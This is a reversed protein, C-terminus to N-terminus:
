AARLLFMNIYERIFLCIRKLKILDWSQTVTTVTEQNEVKEKVLCRYTSPSPCTAPGKRLCPGLKPPQPVLPVNYNIASRLNQILLAVLM